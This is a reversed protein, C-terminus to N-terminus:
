NSKHYWHSQQSWKQRVNDSLVQKFGMIEKIRDSQEKSTLRELVLFAVDPATSPNWSTIVNCDSVIPQNIVNVTYSELEKQRVINKNYTTARRNILVDSRAIALAGVCVSAILKSQANFKRILKLFREDYADEFYNYEEFGGPIVLAEFETTDIEDVLYDVIFRQNFSSKIERRLGCSFLQTTGDGDVQNWGIVDIFVSAEYTEFGDALFLLVKKM